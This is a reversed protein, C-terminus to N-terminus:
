VLTELNLEGSRRKESLSGRLARRVKHLQSKSTGLSCDQMSAIEWHQFGQVDHLLFIDRYGPALTLLARNIDLRDVIGAQRIDRAGFEHGSREDPVSEAMQDLSVMALVRKRMYMLVVNTTMRHLWTTFASDGRFSKLTRHLQLFTEQTLDEALSFERVMKLCIGFVRRKHQLYLETFADEDGAQARCVFDPQNRRLKVQDTRFEPGPIGISNLLSISVASTVM